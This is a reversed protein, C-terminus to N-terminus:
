PSRSTCSWAIELRVSINNIKCYTQLIHWISTNSASSCDGSSLWEERMAAAVFDARLWSLTLMLQGLVHRFKEEEKMASTVASSLVSGV